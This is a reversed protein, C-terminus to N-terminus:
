RVKSANMWEVLEARSAFVRGDKELQHLPMGLKDRWRMATRDCVGLFAAIEKLTCLDWHGPVGEDTAMPPESVM